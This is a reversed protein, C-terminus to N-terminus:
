PRLFKAGGGADPAPESREPGRALGGNLVPPPAAEFEAMVQAFARGFTPALAVDGAEARGKASVVSVIEPGDEGLRFVPAGSAGLDVACSLVAVGSARRLVHCTEQLSPANARDRAYSVVSVEEGRAPGEATPFPLIRGTRVPRDLELVALDVAVREFSVDTGHAYDPHAVARRVGRYAAARGDRWGALFEIRADPIRAGTDGDYLCHAATLVLRESILAGTCFSATGLELRGVGEWGRTEDSTVLRELVSGQEAAARTTAGLALAVTCALVAIQRHM